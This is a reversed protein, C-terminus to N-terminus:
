IGGVEDELMSDIEGAFHREMAKYDIKKDSKLELIGGMIDMRDYTRFWHIIAERVTGDCYRKAFKSLPMFTHSLYYLDFFDKPDKRGGAFKVRGAADAKKAIGVIAFIKRIYIDELSLINIGSVSAPKKIIDIFDEVFDVKISAKGNFFVNYVAMRARGTESVQGVLAVRAKLESKIRKIIEKIKFDSFRRTFFDLDMSLRHRFYFLSLATGGALYFGDIRGSLAVLVKRQYKIVEKDTM